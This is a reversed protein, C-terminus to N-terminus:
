RLEPRDPHRSGRTAVPVRPPSLRPQPMWDEATLTRVAGTLPRHFDAAGDGKVHGEVVVTQVPTARSLPARRGDRFFAATGIFPFADIACRAATTAADIGTLSIKDVGRTFDAIRVMRPGLPADAILGRAFQDAGDGGTPVEIGTGGSLGDGGAGRERGDNKASVVSSGAEADGNPADNGDKGDIWEKGGAGFLIDDGSYGSIMEDAATGQVVDNADDGPYAGGLWATVWTTTTYSATRSNM